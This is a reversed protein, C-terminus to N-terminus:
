RVIAGKGTVALGDKYNLASYEVKVTVDGPMLDADKLRTFKVAQGDDRTSVLYAPSSNNM